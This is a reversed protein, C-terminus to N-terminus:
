MNLSPIKTKISSTFIRPLCMLRPPMKGLVVIPFRSAPCQKEYFRTIKNIKDIEQHIEKTLAISKDKDSPSQEGQLSLALASELEKTDKTKGLALNEKAKDFLDKAQDYSNAIVRAERIENRHINNARIKLYGCFVFIAILLLYVYKRKEKLSLFRWANVIFPSIASFFQEFGTKTKHTYTTTKIKFKKFSDSSTLKSIQPGTSENNPSSQRNKRIEAIKAQIKGGYITSKEFM